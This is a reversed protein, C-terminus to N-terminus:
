RRVDFSYLKIMTARPAGEFGDNFVVCDRIRSQLSKSEDDTGGVDLALLVHCGLASPQPGNSLSERCQTWRILVAKCPLKRDIVGYVRVKLALSLSRGVFVDCGFPCPPRFFFRGYCFYVSEQ